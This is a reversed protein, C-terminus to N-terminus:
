KRSASPLVLFEIWNRAELRRVEEDLIDEDIGLNWAADKRNPDESLADLRKTYAKIESSDAFFGM